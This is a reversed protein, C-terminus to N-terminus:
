CTIEGDEDIHGCSVVDFDDWMQPGGCYAASVCGCEVCPLYCGPYDSYEPSTAPTDGLLVWVDDNCRTCEWWQGIRGNEDEEPEGHILWSHEATTTTM